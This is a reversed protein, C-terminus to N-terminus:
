LGPQQSDEERQMALRAPNERWYYPRLCEICLYDPERDPSADPQDRPPRLAKAPALLGGCVDCRKDPVLRTMSAAIIKAFECDGILAVVTEHSM